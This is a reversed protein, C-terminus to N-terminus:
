ANSDSTPDDAKSAVGNKFMILELSRLPTMTYGVKEVMSQHLPEFEPLSAIENSFRNYDLYSQYNHITQQNANKGTLYQYVRSDWIAYSSPNIFHLIKSVGVLSNNFCASLEELDAESLSKGDKARNLIYVVEEWKDSKFNFIRPMWGYTFHIGIVVDHKTIEQLDAFYKLFEPYAILYSKDTTFVVKKEDEILKELPIREKIIDYM